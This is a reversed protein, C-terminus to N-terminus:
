RSLLLQGGVLCFFAGFAAEFWRMLRKYTGMVAKSSFVFVYAGYISASTLGAVICFGLIVGKSAGSSLVFTSISAWFLASKPNLLCVTLGRRFAAAPLLARGDPRIAGPVNRWAALLGRVGLYLLYLGGGIKLVLLLPPYLAFVVSLGFGSALSWLFSGTAIGVATYFGIARGNGLATSAAAVLNPGPAAIAVALAAWATFLIRFAEDSV